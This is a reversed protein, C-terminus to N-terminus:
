MHQMYVIQMKSDGFMMEQQPIPAYQPGQYSPPVMMMMTPQPRSRGSLFDCGPQSRQCNTGGGCMMGCLALLLM